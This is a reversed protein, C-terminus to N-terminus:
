RKSQCASIETRMGTHGLTAPFLRGEISQILTLGERYWLWLHLIGVYTIGVCFTGVYYPEWM